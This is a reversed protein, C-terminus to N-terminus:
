LANTLALKRGKDMIKLSFVNLREGNIKINDRLVKCYGKDLQYRKRRNRTEIHTEVMFSHHTQCMIKRVTNLCDYTKKMNTVQSPLYFQNIESHHVLKCEQIGSDPRM